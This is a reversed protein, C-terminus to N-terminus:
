NLMKCSELDIKKNLIKRKTKKRSKSTSSKSSMSRSFSISQKNRIKKFVFSTLKNTMNKIVTHIKGSAFSVLFVVVIISEFNSSLKEGLNPAYKGMYIIRIILSVVFSLIIVISLMYSRNYKGHKQLFSSLRHTLASIFFSILDTMPMAYAYVVVLNLLEQLMESGIFKRILSQSGTGLCILLSAYIFIKFAKININSTYGIYTDFLAKLPVVLAKYLTKIIQKDSKAIEGMRNKYLIEEKDNYVIYRVKENNKSYNRIYNKNWYFLYMKKEKTLDFEVDEIVYNTKKWNGKVINKCQSMKQRRVRGDKERIFKMNCLENDYVIYEGDCFTFCCVHGDSSIVLSGLIYNGYQLPPNKITSSIYLMDYNDTLDSKYIELKSSMNLIKKVRLRPQSIKTLVNFFTDSILDVYGGTKLEIDFINGQIPYKETFDKSVLNHERAVTLRKPYINRIDPNVDEYINNLSNFIIHRLYKIIFIAEDSKVRDLADERFLEPTLTGFGIDSLFMAFIASHVWCAGHYQYPGNLESFVKIIGIKEANRINLKNTTRALREM